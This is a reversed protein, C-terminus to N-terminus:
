KDGLSASGGGCTGVVVSVGIFCLLALAQRHASIKRHRRTSRQRYSASATMDIDNIVNAVVVSSSQRHHHHM